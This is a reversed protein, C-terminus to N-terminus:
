PRNAALRNDIVKKHRRYHAIAARVVEVPIRFGRAIAALEEDDGSDLYGIIAWVSIGYGRIRAEDAGPRHPNPEVYKAIL